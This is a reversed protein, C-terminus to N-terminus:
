FMFLYVLTNVIVLVCIILYCIGFLSIEETGSHPMRYSAEAERAKLKKKIMMGRVAGGGYGLGLSDERDGEREEHDSDDNSFTEHFIPLRRVQGFSPPPVVVPPSLMPPAIQRAAAFTDFVSRTPLLFYFRGYM